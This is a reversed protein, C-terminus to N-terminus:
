SRYKRPEYKNIFENMKSSSNSYINYSLNGTYGVIKSHGNKHVYKPNISFNGRQKTIGSSLKVIENYKSLISSIDDESKRTLKISIRSTLEDSFVKKSFKKNFNIQSAFLVFPLVSIFIIKLM